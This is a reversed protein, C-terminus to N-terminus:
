TGEEELLTPLRNGHFMRHMQERRLYHMLAPDELRDVKPNVYSSFFGWLFAMGGILWPRELMRYLGRGLAFLPHTGIAYAGWGWIIRGRIPGFSSGQLRHHTLPIDPDHLTVWGHRRADTQDLIDWGYLNRLGGLDRFCARRYFKAQGPVFYLAHRESVLKDGVKLYTTGGAMGVRPDNFHALIREFTDSGFELDCDMKAIVDYPDDGLHDLGANFAQVVGPGLQRGGERRRRVLEIWSHERAYRDVLAATSDTSGDDVVIWRDPRHTQGVVSKLTLEVFREEDRCPSIVVLRLSM